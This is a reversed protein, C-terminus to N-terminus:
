SFILFHGQAEKLSKQSTVKHSSGCISSTLNPANLNSHLPFECSVPSGRLFFPYSDASHSCVLYIGQPLLMYLLCNIDFWPVTAYCNQM